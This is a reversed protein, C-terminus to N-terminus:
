LQTLVSLTANAEDYGAAAFTALAKLQAKRAEEPLYATAYGLAKSATTQSVTGPASGRMATRLAECSKEIMAVDINQGSRQLVDLMAVVMSDRVGGETTTINKCLDRVLSGIKKNNVSLLVTIVQSAEKRVKASSEKLNKVFCTQLSSIFPKMM